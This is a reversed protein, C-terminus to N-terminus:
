GNAPQRSVFAGYNDHGMLLVALGINWVQIGSFSVDFTSTHGDPTSAANDVEGAVRRGDRADLLYFSPPPLARGTENRIQLTGRGANLDLTATLGANAYVYVGSSAQGTPSGVPTPSSTGPTPSSRDGGGGTCAALAALLAVPVASRAFRTMLRAHYTVSALV